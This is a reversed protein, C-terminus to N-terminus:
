HPHNDVWYQQSSLEEIHATITEGFGFYGLNIEITTKEIKEGFMVLHIASALQHVLLLGGREFQFQLLWSKRAM